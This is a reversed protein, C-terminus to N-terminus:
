DGSVALCNKGCSWSNTGFRRTRPQPRTKAVRMSTVRGLDPIGARDNVGVSFSITQTDFQISVRYVCPHRPGANVGYDDPRGGGGPKQIKGHVIWFCLRPLFNGVVAEPVARSADSAARWHGCRDSPVMDWRLRLGISTRSTEAASAHPKSRFTIRM